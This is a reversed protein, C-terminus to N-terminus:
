DQSAALPLAYVKDHSELLYTVLADMAEAPIDFSDCGECSIHAAAIGGKVIRPQFEWMMPESRERALDFASTWRAQRAMDAKSLLDGPARAM